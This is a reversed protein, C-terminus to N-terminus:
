YFSGKKNASYRHVRISPLYAEDEIKNDSRVLRQRESPPTMPPLNFDPLEMQGEYPFMLPLSVNLSRRKKDAFILNARLVPAQKQVRALPESDQIAALREIQIKIHASETNLKCLLDYAEQKTIKNISRGSTYWSFGVKEPRNVVLPIHRFVQKLHLRNLGERSLNDNLSHYRKALRGQIERWNANDDEKVQHVLTRFQDKLQNIENAFTIQERSLGILGPFIRTERGDQDEHYWLDLLAEELNTIQGKLSWDALWYSRNEHEISRSFATTSARLKEFHSFLDAEM